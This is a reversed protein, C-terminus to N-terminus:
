TSYMYFLDDYISSAMSTPDCKYLITFIETFATNM